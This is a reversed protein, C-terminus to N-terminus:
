NVTVYEEANVKQYTSTRRQYRFYFLVAVGVILSLFFMWGWFGGSGHPVEENRKCLSHEDLYFGSRCKSCVKNEDAGAVQCDQTGLVCEGYKNLSYGASCLQCTVEPKDTTLCIQCNSLACQNKHDCIGDKVLIGQFCGLCKDNQDCVACVKQSCAQCKNDSTLHFGFACVVCTVQDGQKHYEICNDVSKGVNTECKLDKEDFYSFNCTKCVPKESKTCERCFKVNPCATVWGLFILSAILFGKPM